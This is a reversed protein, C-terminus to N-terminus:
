ERRRRKKAKLMGMRAELEKEMEAIEKKLNQIRKGNRWKGVSSSYVGRDRKLEVEKLQKRSFRLRSRLRHVEVRPQNGESQSLVEEYIAIDQKLKEIINNNRTRAGSTTHISRERKTEAAKLRERAFKLMRRITVPPLQWLQRLHEEPHLQQTVEKMTETQRVESM